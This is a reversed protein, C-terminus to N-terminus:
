RVFETTPVSPIIDRHGGTARTRVWSAIQDRSTVGLRFQIRQIYTAVTAPSLTLRRAISINKLGDAVLFAIERERATLSQAPTSLRSRGAKEETLDRIARQM